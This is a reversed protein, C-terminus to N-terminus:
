KKFTKNNDVIQFGGYCRFLTKNADSLYYIILMQINFLLSFCYLGIIHNQFKYCVNFFFLIEYVKSNLNVSAFQILFEDLCM